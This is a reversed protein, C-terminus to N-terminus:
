YKYLDGFDNKPAYPKVKAMFGALEKHGLVDNLGKEDWFMCAWNQRTKLDSAVHVGVIFCGSNTM